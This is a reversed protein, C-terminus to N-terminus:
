NLKGKGFAFDVVKDIQEKPISGSVSEPHGIASMRTQAKDTWFTGSPISERSEIWAELESVTESGDANLSLRVASVGPKKKEHEDPSCRGSQLLASLRSAISKQHAKEAWAIKAQVAAPMASMSSMTSIDPQQAVPGTASDGANQVPKNEESENPKDKNIHSSATLLAAYLRDFVNSDDTDEPIVINYNQELLDLVEDLKDYSSSDDSSESEPPPTDSTPKEDKVDEMVKSDESMRLSMKRKGKRKGRSSKGRKRTGTAPKHDEDLYEHGGVTIPFVKGNKTYFGDAPEDSGMRKATAMHYVQSLGMRLGCAIATPVPTFQSQSHDVPHNVLDVHTICDQYKNGHGDKWEPLIVPSVFVENRSARGEAVPDTIEFTMEASEGDSGVVFDVLKGITSQASRANYQDESLASLQEITSGHDWSIPVVQKANRLRQHTAQWHALRDRTISIEGDPSIYTGTKLGVKKLTAMRSYHGSMIKKALIAM